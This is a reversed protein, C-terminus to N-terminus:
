KILYTVLLYCTFYVIIISLTVPEFPINYYNYVKFTSIISPISFFLLLYYNAKNIIQEKNKNETEENVSIGLFSMLKYGATEGTIDGTKKPHFNFSYEKSGDLFTSLKTIWCSGDHDNWDLVLMIFFLPYYLLYKPNIIFPILFYSFVLLYHFFESLYSIQKSINM